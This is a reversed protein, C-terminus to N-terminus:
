KKELIASRQEFQALEELTNINAFAAEDAFTVEVADLTAYWRGISREGTALFATLSPLVERRCLMFTHQTWGATTALALQAQAVDLAAHLRAVLDCPLFPTDCPVTALLPTSCQALGAQLGALPGAYGDLTDAILPYGFAAYAAANHNTNILLRDVQPAFREIVHALLPKGRLMQLGKDSGGMRRALGGAIILGTIQPTAVVSESM